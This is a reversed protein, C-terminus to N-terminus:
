SAHRGNRFYVISTMSVLAIKARLAANSTEDSRSFPQKVIVRGRTLM